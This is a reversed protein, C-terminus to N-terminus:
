LLWRLLVLSLVTLQFLVIIGVTHRFHCSIGVGGIRRMLIAVATVSLAPCTSTADEPTDKPFYGGKAADSEENQHNQAELVAHERDKPPVAQANELLVIGLHSFLQSFIM